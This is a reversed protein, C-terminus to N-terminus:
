LSCLLKASSLCQTCCSFGRRIIGVTPFWDACFLFSISLYKSSHLVAAMGLVVWGLCVEISLTNSHALRDYILSPGCSIHSAHSTPITSLFAKSALCTTQNVPIMLAHVSRTVAANPSDRWACASTFVYGYGTDPGTRPIYLYRGAPHM